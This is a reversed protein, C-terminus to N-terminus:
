ISYTTNDQTYVVIDSYKYIQFQRSNIYLFKARRCSLFTVFDSVWGPVQDRSSILHTFNKTQLNHLEIGEEQMCGPHQDSNWQLSKVCM